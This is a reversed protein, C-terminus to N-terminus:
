LIHDTEQCINIRFCWTITASSLLHFVTHWRHHTLIHIRFDWHSRLQQSRPAARCPPLFPMCICCFCSPSNAPTSLQSVPLKPQIAHAIGASSRRTPETCMSWSQRCVSTCARWPSMRFVARLSVQERCLCSCLPLTSYLGWIWNMRM